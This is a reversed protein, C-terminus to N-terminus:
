TLAESRGAGAHERLWAAALRGAEWASAVSVESLLGPAAVMDGVVFVGGDRDVAPRDRWTSGPLDLAGTRSEMVQRRRWTERERWGAFGADLAAEIRAVTDEVAEAPRIGAHAQVLEHGAPALSRDYATFREIFTRGELDFIVAPDGRRRRLGLDLLVTRTGEWRLTEDGLLERAVDLETALIVPPEPLGGVFAGTEIEVGLLRARAELREVLRSWGGRIYRVRPPLYVWVLREWVFAASLRGPDHDFTFVQAIGCLVEAARAGVMRTAWTRFDLEHPATRFRLRLAGAILPAPPRRRLKGAALFRIDATPSWTVPPLLGKAKLRKWMPLNLYAAHPGLNALYPGEATLARGGLQSRAELLRVGAGEEACAIAAVLGGIGGGVVTVVDASM